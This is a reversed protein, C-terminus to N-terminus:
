PDRSWAALLALLDDFGVQCDGTLDADCAGPCPGWASLLVLLDEFGVAGDGDLDASGGAAGSAMLQAWVPQWFRDAEEDSAPHIGDGSTGMTPWAERTLQYLDIFGVTGHPDAQAIEFLRAAYNAYRAHDGHDDRPPSVLLIHIADAPLASAGRIKAILALVDTRYRHGPEGSGDNQGLLIIFLDPDRTAALYSALPAAAILCYPGHDPESWHRVTAGDMGWVDLQFGTRDADCVLASVPFLFRGAEMGPPGTACVGGVPHAGTGPPLAAEVVGIDPEGSAIERAPDTLPGTTGGRIGAWRLAPVLDLDAHDGRVYLLRVHTMTGTVEPGTPGDLAHQFLGPTLATLFEILPEGDGAGSSTRFESVNSPWCDLLVAPPNTFAPSKPSFWRIVGPAIRRSRSGDYVSDTPRTTLTFGSWRSPEFTRAIAGFHRHAQGRSGISDAIVLAHCRGAERIRRRIGCVNWRVPPREAMSAPPSGTDAGDAAAPARADVAAHVIPLSVAWLGVGLLIRLPARFLCRPAGHCSRPM